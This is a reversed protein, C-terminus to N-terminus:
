QIHVTRAHWVHSGDEQGCTTRYEERCRLRLKTCSYMINANPIFKPYICSKRNNTFYRIKATAMLSISPPNHYQRPKWRKCFLTKHQFNKGFKNSLGEKMDSTIRKKLRIHLNNSM